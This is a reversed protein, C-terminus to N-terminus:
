GREQVITVIRKGDFYCGVSTALLTILVNILAALSDM